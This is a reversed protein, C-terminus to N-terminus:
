IQCPRGGETAWLEITGVGPPLFPLLADRVIRLRRLVETSPQEDGWAVAVRLEGSLSPLIHPLLGLQQKATILEEIEPLIDDVAKAWEWAYRLAQLPAYYLNSAGGWKHEVLALSGQDDVALVDLENAAKPTAVRAWDVAIARIADTAEAVRPIPQLGGGIVAERDISIWPSTELMWDGQVAGEKTTYQPNVEVRQVYTSLAARFGHEALDWSKMLARSCAQKEYTPHASIHIYPPRYQAVLVRTLGCYLMVEDTERLQPDLRLGSVAWPELLPALLGNQLADTLDASPARAYRPKTM